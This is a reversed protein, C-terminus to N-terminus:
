GEYTLRLATESGLGLSCEANPPLGPVWVIGVAEVEFVPLADRERRDIKREIFLSKLKKPSSKGLPKFADGARRLRVRVSTPQNGSLKLYVSKSDDNGGAKLKNYFEPDTEVRQCEVRAGDPLYVIQGEQLRFPEWGRKGIESRELGRLWTDCLEFFFRPRLEYNGDDGDKLAQLVAEVTAASADSGGPMKALLRRQLAVPLQQLGARALGRERESWLEEWAREAWEDLALADEELLRRSRCVGPRVPRDSAENWSPVTTKRLRARYNGNSQNSSDERWQVGAERLLSRIEERGWALAPRVFVLGNGAKSVERPACLGAGGAGRSLRMLITEAIDDAHHGTVICVESGESSGCAEAFFALRAARAVAESVRRTERGWDAKADVVQISLDNCIRRVFSADGTSEEGRLAHDFHLAQLEVGAGRSKLFSRVLLLAFVSDAGGSCAVRVQREGLLIEAVSRPIRSFDISAEFRAAAEGWNM